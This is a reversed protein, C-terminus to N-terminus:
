VLFIYWLMNIFNREGIYEGLYCIQCTLPLNSKGALEAEKQALKDYLEQQTQREAELRQIRQSMEIRVKGVEALMENSKGALSQCRLGHSVHAVLVADSVLIYLTTCLCVSM